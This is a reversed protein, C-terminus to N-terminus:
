DHKVPSFFMSVLTLSFFKKRFPFILFNLIDYQLFFFFFCLLKSFRLFTFIYHFTNFVARELPFFPAFM